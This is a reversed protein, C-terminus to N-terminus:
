SHLDATLKTCNSLSSLIRTVTVDLFLTLKDDYKAELNAKDKHIRVYEHM